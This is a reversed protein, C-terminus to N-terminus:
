PAGAMTLIDSLMQTPHGADTLGNWVPVGANEFVLAINKGTLRARETGDAKAAKLLSARARSAPVADQDPRGGM